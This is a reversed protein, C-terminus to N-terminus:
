PPTQSTERWRQIFEMVAQRVLAARSLGMAEAMRKLHALEDPALFVLIRKADWPYSRPRPM